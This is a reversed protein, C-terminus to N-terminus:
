PEFVASFNEQIAEKYGRGIKLSDQYLKQMRTFYLVQLEGSKDKSWQKIVDDFLKILHPYYNSYIDGFPLQYATAVELYYVELSLVLKPVKCVRKFDKLLQNSQKLNPYKMIGSARNKPFTKALKKQYESLLPEWAAEEVMLHADASTKYIQAIPQILEEKELADLQKRLVPLALQKKM